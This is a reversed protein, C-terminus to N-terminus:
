TAPPRRTASAQGAGILRQQLKIYSAADTAQGQPNVVQIEDGVNMEKIM